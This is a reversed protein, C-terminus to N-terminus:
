WVQSRFNLRGMYIPLIYSWESRVSSNIIRVLDHQQRDSSKRGGVVKPVATMGQWEGESLDQNTQCAGVVSRWPGYRTVACRM